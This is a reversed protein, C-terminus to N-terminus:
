LLFIYQSYSRAESKDSFFTPYNFIKSTHEHIKQFSFLLYCAYVQLLIIDKLDKDASFVVKVCNQRLAQM